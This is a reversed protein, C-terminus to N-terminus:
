VRKQLNSISLGVLVSCAVMVIPIIIPSLAIPATFAILLGVALLGNLRLSYRHIVPSAYAFNSRKIQWTMVGDYIAPLLILLLYPAWMFLLASRALFQYVVNGFAELRDDVWVFVKGGFTELGRSNRREQETPILHHYMAAYFGSDLMSSQYWQDAKSQIWEASEQGMIQSVLVREKKIARDTWDGPVLLLVVVAELALFLAVLWFPMKM